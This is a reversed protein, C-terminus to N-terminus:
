EEMCGSLSAALDIVGVNPGGLPNVPGLKSVSGSLVALLEREQKSPLADRIEKLVSLVSDDCAVKKKKCFWV